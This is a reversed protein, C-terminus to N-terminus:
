RVEGGIRPSEFEIIQRNPLYCIGGDACGQSTAVLRFTGVPGAGSVIPIRISMEGRYIESRGFYEDEHWEGDPFHPAGLEVSHPEAEFRFRDRYMYYGEAIQYHAEISRDSVLRASFRFADEPELFEEDAFCPPSLALMVLLGSLWQRM